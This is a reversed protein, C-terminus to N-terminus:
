THRSHLTKIHKQTDREMHSAVTHRRERHTLPSLWPIWYMSPLDNEEDEVELGLRESYVVNDEVFDEVTKSSKEYTSNGNGIQGIEKLIVEVYYRKCIIAKNNGAKDSLSLSM